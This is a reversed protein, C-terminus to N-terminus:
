SRRRYYVSAGVVVATTAGAAAWLEWRQWWPRAQDEGGGQPQSSGEDEAGELDTGADVDADADADVDIDADADADADADDADADANHGPFLPIVEAWGSEEAASELVEPAWDVLAAKLAGEADEDTLNNAPDLLEPNSLDRKILLVLAAPAREVESTLTDSSASWDVSASEVASWPWATASGKVTSAFLERGEQSAANFQITLWQEIQDALAQGETPGTSYMALQVIAHRDLYM